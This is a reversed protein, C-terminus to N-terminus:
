SRFLGITNSSQDPGFVPQSAQGKEPAVGVSVHFDRRRSGDDSDARREGNPVVEIHQKRFFSSQVFPHMVNVSM